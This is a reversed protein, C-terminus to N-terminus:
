YEPSDQIANRRFLRSDNHDLPCFESDTFLSCALSVNAIFHTELSRCPPFNGSIDRSLAQFVFAFAGACTLALSATIVLSATSCTQDGWRRFMTRIIQWCYTTIIFLPHILLAYYHEWAFPNLFVSLLGFLAFPLDISRGDAELARKFSGRSVWVSVTILLISIASVITTSVMAPHGGGECFPFLTQTVLGSLSSNQLSGLWVETIPKEQELFLLWSNLGFKLTMTVAVISYTVAAAVFGRWRRGFLLMVVMLGPFLKLTAAIGICVGAGTDRGRRLFLWALVYLFAIHESCQTAGYHYPLWETSFVLATALAAVVVPAPWNLAKACLYYHPILLILLSLGGVEAVLAKSFDVLPLYWFATTPPWGVQSQGLMSLGAPEYPNVGLRSLRAAKWDTLGDLEHADAWDKPFYVQLHRRVLELAIALALCVLLLYALRASIPARFRNLPVGSPITERGLLENAVGAIQM